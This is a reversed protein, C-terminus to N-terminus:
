QAEQDPYRRADAPGCTVSLSVDSIRNAAEAAHAQQCGEHTISSLAGIFLLHSLNM